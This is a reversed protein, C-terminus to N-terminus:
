TSFWVLYILVHYLIEKSLQHFLISYFLVSYLFALVSQGMCKSWSRGKTCDEYSLCRATGCRSCNAIDQQCLDRWLWVTEYFLLRTAQIKIRGNGWRWLSHTLCNWNVAQMNYESSNVLGVKFLYEKLQCPETALGTLIKLQNRSLNLLHTHTHTHTHTHREREREASTKKWFARLKDKDMYPRGISKM